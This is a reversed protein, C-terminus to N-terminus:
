KRELKKAPNGVYIGEDSIDKLVIAGMGIIANKCVKLKERISSNTGFYVCDDIYCNGSINVGPASTFYDGLICDHGVTTNLNLQAHKGIKIEATIIVGPTIISGEGIEVYKSVIARPHVLTLYRTNSPLSEVIIKRKLPDGIAVLVEYDNASFKSKPIVNIGMVTRSTYWEDDVVFVAIDEIRQNSKALSDILYCITEKGFGGAGFVAIKNDPKLM